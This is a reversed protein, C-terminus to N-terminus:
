FNHMAKVPSTVVLYKQRKKVQEHILLPGSFFFDKEKMQDAIYM